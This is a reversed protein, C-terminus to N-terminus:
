QDRGKKFSLGEHALHLEEIGVDTARANFDAAKFKIPMARALAWSFAAERSSAQARAGQESEAPAILSIVVTCRHGPDGGQTVREFWQFLKGQRSIGRKLVVTGFTVPGVRQIAGYNKGGAKIVKPEMTAELGTCEAFAGDPWASAAGQDDGGRAGQPKASPEFSVMFRFAYLPDLPLSSM